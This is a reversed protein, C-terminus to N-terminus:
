DGKAALRILSVWAGPPPERGMDPGRSRKDRDRDVIRDRDMGRDRDRDPVPAARLKDTIM